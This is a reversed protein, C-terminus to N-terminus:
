SDDPDPEKIVIAAPRPPQEAAEAMDDFPSPVPSDLTDSGVQLLLNRRTVRDLWMGVFGHGLWAVLTSVLVISGLPQLVINWWNGGLGGSAFDDDIRDTM